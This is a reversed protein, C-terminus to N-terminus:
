AARRPTAAAALRLPAMDARREEMLRDLEQDLERRMLRLEEIRRLRQDAADLVAGLDPGRPATSGM